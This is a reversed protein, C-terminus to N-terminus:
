AARRVVQPKPLAIAAAASLRNSLLHARLQLIHDATKPKWRAGPRKMRVFYISKANAEVPGSGIPLGRRRNDAYRMRDTHNELYTLAEHVPRTKGVQVNEAGSARLEDAIREPARRHNLLDLKWRTTLAQPTAPAIAAAAASLKEILHWFDVTSTVDPVGQLESELMSWLDHAGDCLAVIPLEPHKQRIALVDSVLSECLWEGQAPERGYHITDLVAGEADHFTVTGSWAMRFVRRIPRKPADRRPRGRPRPRPEEFAMSSRDLAVGISATGAPISMAEVLTQEIEERKAIVRGGVAHAVEEFSTRSYPLRKELQSVQEAERSTGIALRQAMARATGPLWAGEVLGGRVAIPDITAANHIGTGLPRYISREIPGIPGAMGYYTMEYRGVRAHEVGGIRIRRADVDLRKLMEGLMACEVRGAAVGVRDEVEVMDVGRGGTTRRELELLEASAARVAEALPKHHAPLEVVIKDM